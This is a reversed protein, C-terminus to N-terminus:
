PLVVFRARGPLRYVTFDADFTLITHLREREAVIVLAADAFHMPRDRYKLMLQSARRMEGPELHLIGVLGEAIMDCLAEPARPVDALLHM